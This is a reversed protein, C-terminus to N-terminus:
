GRGRQVRHSISSKAEYVEALVVPCGLAEFAMSRHNGNTTIPRIPGLPGAFSPSLSGTATVLIMSTSPICSLHISTRSYRKHSTRWGRQGTNAEQFPSALNDVTRSRGRTLGRGIAQIRARAGPIGSTFGPRGAFARFRRMLESRDPPVAAVKRLHDTLLTFAGVHGDYDDLPVSGTLKLLTRAHRVQPATARPQEDLANPGTRSYWHPRTM